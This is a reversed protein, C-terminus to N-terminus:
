LSEGLADNYQSKKPKPKIPESYEDAPKSIKWGAILDKTPYPAQDWGWRSIKLADSTAVGGLQAASKAVDGQLAPNLLDIVKEHRGFLGSRQVSYMLHDTLDWNRKWVPRDGLLKDDDDFAGKIADRLLDAGFMWIPFVSLMIAIPMYDKNEIARAFAPRLIQNDFATIFGQWISLVSYYPDSTYFPRTSSDPRVTSEDVFRHIAMRVRLDREQEEASAAVREEWNLIKVHGKTPEFTVDEPMLGLERLKQFGSDDGKVAQTHWKKIASFAAFTAMSRTKDTIWSVGNYKFFGNLVKQATPDLAENYYTAALDEQTYLHELTGVIEVYEQLVDLPIDNKKNKFLRRTERISEAFTGFDAGTRVLQGFPDVSASAFALTLHSIDLWTIIASNIKQLNPNM